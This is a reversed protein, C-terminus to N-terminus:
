VDFAYGAHSDSMGATLCASYRIAQREAVIERIRKLVSWPVLAGPYGAQKHLRAVEMAREDYDDYLIFDGEDRADDRLVMLKAYMSELNFVESRNVRYLKESM